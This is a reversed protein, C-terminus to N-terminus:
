LFRMVSRTNSCAQGSRWWYLTFAVPSRLKRQCEKEGLIADIPWLHKDAM